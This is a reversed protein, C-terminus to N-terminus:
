KRSNHGDLTIKQLIEQLSKYKKHGNKLYYSETQKNGPQGTWLRNVSVIKDIGFKKNRYHWVYSKMMSVHRIERWELDTTKM